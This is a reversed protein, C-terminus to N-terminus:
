CFLLNNFHAHLKGEEKVDHEEKVEEKKIGEKVDPTHAGQKQALKNQLEEIEKKLKPLETNVEKYKRKYRHVEGIFLYGILSVDFRLMKNLNFLKRNTIYM